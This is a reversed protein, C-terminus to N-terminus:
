SAVKETEENFNAVSELSWLKTSGVLKWKPLLKNKLIVKEGLGKKPSLMKSVKSYSVGIENSMEKVDIFLKNYKEYLMKVKENM